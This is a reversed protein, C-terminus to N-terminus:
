ATCGQQYGRRIAGEAAAAFRCGGHTRLRAQLTEPLDKDGQRADRAHARTAVTLTPVISAGMDGGRLSTESILAAEDPSKARGDCNATSM